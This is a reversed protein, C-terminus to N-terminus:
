SSVNPSVSLIQLLSAGFLLATICYSAGTMYAPGFLFLPVLSFLSALISCTLSTGKGRTRLRHREERSSSSVLPSHNSRLDCALSLLCALAALITLIGTILPTFNAYGFPILSFYSYTEQHLGTANPGQSFSLVAGLPLSELFLTELLLVFSFVHYLYSFSLKGVSHRPSVNQPSNNNSQNSAGHDSRLSTVLQLISFFILDVGLIWFVNPGSTFAPSSLLGIGILLCFISIAKRTSAKAYELSDVLLADARVTTEEQPIREGALLEGVSVGLADSLPQLLSTDPYGKGTEWRSIAKDTVQLLTALEKQTLKKETRLKSIFEGTQKPSM